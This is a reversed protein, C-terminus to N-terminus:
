NKVLHDIKESCTVEIQQLQKSCMQSAQTITFARCRTKIVVVLVRM